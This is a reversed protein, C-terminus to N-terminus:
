SAALGFANSTNCCGRNQLQSVLSDNRWSVLSLTSNSSLIASESMKFANSLIAGIARKLAHILHGSCKNSMTSFKGQAVSQLFKYPRNWFPEITIKITSERSEKNFYVFNNAPVAPFLFEEM